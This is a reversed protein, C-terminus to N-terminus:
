RTGCTWSYLESVVRDRVKDKVWLGLGDFGSPDGMDVCIEITSSDTDYEYGFCAVVHLFCAGLHCVLTTYILLKIGQKLMESIELMKELDHFVSILQWGHVM